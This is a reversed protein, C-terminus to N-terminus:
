LGPRGAPESEATGSFPQVDKYKAILRAYDPINKVFINAVKDAYVLRWRDDTLLFRSLPSDADYFIITIGHYDIIKEWGPEFNLVKYYEKMREVGYMDSRGDIFVHYEPWAAYIVYDGFEDDNFMNGRIAEHKLFEVASVPKIGADFTYNIRGAGAWAAVALMGMVPWLFGAAAADVSSVADARKKFFDAIRGPNENMMSNACRLLIPASLMAFLPIHRRSVLAMDVFLLVTVLEVFDLRKRTLAFLAPVSLLLYKFPLPDHFNPSLFELIHDMLYKRSVLHFPFLLIQYGFPNIMAALLCLAATLSLFRFKSRHLSREDTGTTFSKIGNSLIYIALLMFGIIFGGHLNVWLVMIVPLAMLRNIDRYHYNELLRQWLLILGLSFIHPRALWHIQSSATALLIILVALLINGNETRLIRFLFYYILAILAAFLIVVGTLGSMRHVSAMIVESLWEHATWPLPPSTFSFIDHRPIMQNDLIFEGARIHYGTDCDNLLNRGATLSLYLFLSLFLIDAISPIFYRSLTSRM